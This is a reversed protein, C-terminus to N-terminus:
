LRRQFDQSRGREGSWRGRGGRRNNSRNAVETAAPQRRPGHGGRGRHHQPYGRVMQELVAQEGLFGTAVRGLLTRQAVLAESFSDLLWGQQRLVENARRIDTHRWM